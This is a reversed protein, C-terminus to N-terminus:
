FREILIEALAGRGELTKEAVDAAKADRTFILNLIARERSTLAGADQDDVALQRAREVQKTPLSRLCSRHCSATVSQMELGTLLDVLPWFHM